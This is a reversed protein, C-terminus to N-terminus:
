FNPGEGFDPAGQDYWVREDHLIKPSTTGTTFGQEKFASVKIDYMLDSELPTGVDWRRPIYYNPDGAINSFDKWPLISSNRMPVGSRRVQVFQEQPQLMFHIYEQIYVKELKEKTSGTLQYDEVEQTAAVEEEQLAILADEKDYATTYYPVKNRLALENYERISLEIADKYYKEVDIGLEPAILGIEALYLYVEATSFHLGTWANDQNDIVPSGVKPGCPYTYDKGGQLMERNIRALPVYDKNGEGAPLRFKSADFYKENLEANNRAETSTPAGYYRVWPEGLEKWKKFVKKGTGDITYEVNALIYEPVNIPKDEPKREADADFFAQVVESNFDNKQFIFRVRPDKNKVLLNILQESGIGNGQGDFVDDGWHYEQAGKCYFFDDSLGEMIPNEMVERAIQIAKPKDRHLLRVAIKLRLSNAFKIWKDVNGQYVFDQKGLAVQGEPHSKLLAVTGKLEDDWIKFLDEQREYKPTLIGEHLGRAAETYPISGYMDTSFLGMYVLLPKCMAEINQYRLRDEESMQSLTYKIEETYLKIDLMNSLGGSYAGMQNITSLNGSEDALVSQAWPMTYSVNNYFWQTYGSPEFLSLTQTFLYRIDPKTIASPNTNEKAFEDICGVTSLSLAGLLAVGIISKYKM